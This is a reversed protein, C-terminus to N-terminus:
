RHVAATLGDPSIMLTKGRMLHWNQHVNFVWIWKKAYRQIKVILGEWGRLVFDWIANRKYLFEKRKVHMGM